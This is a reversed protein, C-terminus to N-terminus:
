NECKTIGRFTKLNNELVAYGPIRCLILETVQQNEFGMKKRTM